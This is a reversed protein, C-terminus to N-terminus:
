TNPTLLTLTIHSNRLRTHRSSAQAHWVELSWAMMRVIPGGFVPQIHIFVFFSPFKRPIYRWVRHSLARVSVRVRVWVEM